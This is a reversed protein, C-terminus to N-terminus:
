KSRGLTVADLISPESNSSMFLHHFVSSLSAVPFFHSSKVRVFFLPTPHVHLNKCLMLCRSTNWNLDYLKIQSSFVFLKLVMSPTNIPFGQLGYVQTWKVHSVVAYCDPQAKKDTCQWSWHVHEWRSEHCIPFQPLLVHLVVLCGWLQLKALCFQLSRSSVNMYEFCIRIPGDVYPGSALSSHHCLTQNAFGSITSDFHHENPIRRIPFWVNNSYPVRCYVSHYGHTINDPHFLHIKIM